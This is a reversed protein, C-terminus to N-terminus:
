HSTLPESARDAAHVILVSASTGFLVNRAVSGLVLRSLGTQGRSGLVILDAEREDAFAIIQPAPDGERVEFEANRGADRLRMTADAAIREHRDRAARLDAAYSELARGYMTPALGVAWPRLVEAVSVVQIPLGALIPWERVVAEAAAASDSGDTAFVVSRLEPRRAVVVPCPAADVVESSVSGLLLSAIGSHGRSGVLVLDSKRERAEHEIVSAARGRRVVAEVAASNAHLREVARAATEEIHATIAADVEPSLIGARTGPGGGAILLPEIVSVVRLESGAPWAIAGALALATDAGPSGDYGILARM